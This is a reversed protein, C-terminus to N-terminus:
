ATCPKTWTLMIPRVRSVPLYKEHALITCRRSSHSATPIGVYSRRSSQSRRLREPTREREAALHQTQPKKCSKLVPLCPSSLLHIWWRGPGGALVCLAGGGVRAGDSEVAVVCSVLVSADSSLVSRSARAGTWLGRGRRFVLGAEGGCALEGRVLRVLVGCGLVWAAASSAVGHGRRSAGSTVQRNQCKGIKAGGRRSARRPWKCVGVFVGGRRM